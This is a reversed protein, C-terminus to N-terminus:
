LCDKQSKRAELASLSAKQKTQLEEFEALQEREKDVIQPPAHAIFKDNDLKGRKVKIVTDLKTVERTLRLIEADVDIFDALDVSIDCDAASIEAAGEIKEAGVGLAVVHCMAMAEIAPKM